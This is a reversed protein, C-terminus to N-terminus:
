KPPEASAVASASLHFDAADRRGEHRDLDVVAIVRRLRAVDQGLDGAAAFDIGLEVM